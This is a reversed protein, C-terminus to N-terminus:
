AAADSGTHLAKRTQLAKVLQQVYAETRNRTEFSQAAARGLRERLSIDEMLSRIADRMQEVSGRDVLIADQGDTVYDEITSTRTVIVAKGMAKAQLLVMQGASIDDISLPVIVFMADAISHLYSSDFCNALIEIKPSKPIGALSTPVDCIIKLQVDLEEVATALTLYDRGSRGAAVIYGSRSSGAVDARSALATRETLTTSYPIFVLKGRAEPYAADYRAVERASHCIGVGILSLVIRYYIRFLRSTAGDRSKLIMTEYVITAPSGLLLNLLGYVLAEIDTGVVVVAPREDSLLLSRVSNIIAFKLVRPYVGFLLGIITRYRLNIAKAFVLHRVGLRALETVYPTGTIDDSYRVVYHLM